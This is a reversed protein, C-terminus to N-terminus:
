NLTTFCEFKKSETSKTWFKLKCQFSSIRDKTMFISFNVRQLSLNRENTKMFINALYALKQLWTTSTLCNSLHSPYEVFFASIESYLVPVRVHV